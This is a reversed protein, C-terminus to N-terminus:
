IKNLVLKVVAEASLSVVLGVVAYIIAKRADAAKQPDGQSVSFKIGQIVIILVAVAALVGFVLGLVISLSSQNAQVNPLTTLCNTGVGDPCNQLQAFTNFIM